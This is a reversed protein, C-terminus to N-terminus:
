LLPPYFIRYEVPTKLPYMPQCSSRSNSSRGPLQRLALRCTYSRRVEAEDTKRPQGLRGLQYHFTSFLKQQVIDLAAGNVNDVIQVNSLVIFARLWDM